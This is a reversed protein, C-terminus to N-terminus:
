SNLRNDIVRRIKGTRQNGHIFGPPALTFYFHKLFGKSLYDSLEEAIKIYEKEMAQKMEATQQADLEVKTEIVIELSDHVGKKNLHVQYIPSLIEPFRNVLREIDSIYVNAGGIRVMDDARGLLEFTTAKTGCPCPKLVEKARDGTNLRIVPQLTRSLNTVILTGTEGPHVRKGTEPNVIEVFCADELTHQVGDKLHECQYGICGGDVSAYSGSKIIQTGFIEKLYDSMVQTMHEGGYLIKPIHVKLEPYLEATQALRIFTSPLGFCATVGFDKFIKLIQGPDMDSGVPFSLCGLKESAETTAIFASWLGGGHFLNAFRDQPTIGLNLFERAFIDTVEAWEKKSYVAYKPEGTTGGTTFVYHANQSMPSTLLEVSKPPGSNYFDKKQMLPIDQLKDITPLFGERLGCQDFRGKHFPSKYATKFLSQLKELKDQALAQKLSLM